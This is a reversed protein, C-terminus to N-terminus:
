KLVSHHTGDARAMKGILRQLYICLIKSDDMEFEVGGGVGKRGWRQGEWYVM